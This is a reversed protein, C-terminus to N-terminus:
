ALIRRRVMAAVGLLGTGLLAISSPEPTASVPAFSTESFTVGVGNNGGLQSTLNFTAPTDAFDVAGSESFYGMGTLTLNGPFSNSQNSFTTTLTQLYYSLTENNETVTFIVGPNFSGAIGFNNMTVIQGDTFYPTFSTGSVTGGIMTSGPGFTIQSANYSNPGFLSVQGTISSALAFPVSASLAAGLVALKFINKM